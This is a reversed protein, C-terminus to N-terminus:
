FIAVNNSGPMKVKKCVCDRQINNLKLFLKSYEGTVFFLLKVNITINCLEFESINLKNDHKIDINTVVIM